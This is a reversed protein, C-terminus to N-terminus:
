VGQLKQEVGRYAVRFAQAPPFGADHARFFAEHLSAAVIEAAEVGGHGDYVGGFLGLTPRVELVHRDEM